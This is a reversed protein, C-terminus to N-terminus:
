TRLKRERLMVFLGSGIVISAGLVAIWDPREGFFVVAIILAFLLRTYRFPTVSAVDGVRMAATIAYYGLANVLSGALVVGWSLVNPWPHPGSFPLLAVGAPILAAMGWTAMQMTTVEPPMIRTVLDRTALGLAALVALLVGVSLDASGPRLILLVGALGVAIAAWRRPGVKHGLILAAGLTVLLPVAQQISIVLSLPTLSLATVMCIATAGEVVNRLLMPRALAHLTVLPQGARKCLSGFILVGPIAMFILIQSVSLSHSALKVLADGAAFAAMALIMLAIARRTEM